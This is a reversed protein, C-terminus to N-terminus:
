KKGRGSPCNGKRTLPTEGPNDAPPKIPRTNPGNVVQTENEKRPKNNLDKPM